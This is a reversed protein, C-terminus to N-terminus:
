RTSKIFANKVIFRRSIKPGSWSVTTIRISPKQVTPRWARIYITYSWPNNPCLYNPPRFKGAHVVPARRSWGDFWWVDTLANRRRFSMPFIFRSPVTWGYEGGGLCGSMWGCSYFRTGRRGWGRACASLYMCVCVSVSVCVLAYKGGASWRTRLLVRFLPKMIKTTNRTRRIRGVHRTGRPVPSGCRKHTYLYIM